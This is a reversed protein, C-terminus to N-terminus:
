ARDLDAAFPVLRAVEQHKIGTRRVEGRAFGRPHKHEASGGTPGRWRSHFKTLARGSRIACAFASQRAPRKARTGPSSSNM